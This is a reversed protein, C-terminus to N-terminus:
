RGHDVTTRLGTDEKDVLEEHKAKVPTRGPADLSRDNQSKMSHDEYFPQNPAKLLCRTAGCILGPQFRAWRSWPGKNIARHLPYYVKGQVSLCSAFMWARGESEDTSLSVRGVKLRGCNGIRRRSSRGCWADCAGLDVMMPSECDHRQGMPM